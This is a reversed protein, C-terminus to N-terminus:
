QLPPNDCPNSHMQLNGGTIPVPTPIENGTGDGFVLLPQGTGCDFVVLSYRDILAGDKAGNSGPENRDEARAAFCVTGFDDKNGAIGQLTGSGAFEIVNFPTDPSTSGPPEVNGCGINPIDTGHFHLKSDHDVHNWNGGAGAGDCAPHVNGGFTVQPQHEALRTGTVPEFKVGGGTLWCIGSPLTVWAGASGAGFLTLAVVSVIIIATRMDTRRM